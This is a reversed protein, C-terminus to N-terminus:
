LDSLSSSRPVSNSLCNLRHKSCNMSALGYINASRPTLKAYPFNTMSTKVQAHAEGPEGNQWTAAWRLLSSLIYAEPELALRGIGLERSRFNLNPSRSSPAVSALCNRPTTEQDIQVVGPM